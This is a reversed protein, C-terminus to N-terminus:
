RCVSSTLVPFLTFVTAALGAWASARTLRALVTEGSDAFARAPRWHLWAALAAVGVVCALFATVLVVRQLNSPGVDIQPWGGACGIGHLGYVLSFAGAWGILGAVSLLLAIAARM